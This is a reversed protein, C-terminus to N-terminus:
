CVNLTESLILIKLKLSGIGAEKKSAGCFHCCSGDNTWGTQTLEWIAKMDCVLLDVIEIGTKGWM